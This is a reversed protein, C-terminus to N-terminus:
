IVIMIIKYKAQFMNGFSIDLCGTGSVTNSTDMIKEATEDFGENKFKVKEPEKDSCNIHSDETVL